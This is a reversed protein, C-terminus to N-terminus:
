KDGSNVDENNNEGAPLLGFDGAVDTIRSTLYELTSVVKPYDMRLPGIVGIAGVPRGGIKVTKFVITSSRMVDVRNESGIYINTSDRSGEAVLRIIDEKRELMALMGRLLSM